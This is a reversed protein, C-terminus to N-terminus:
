PHVKTFFVLAWAFGTSVAVVACLTSEREMRYRATLIAAGLSMGFLGALLNALISWVAFMM